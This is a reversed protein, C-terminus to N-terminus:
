TGVMARHDRKLANEFDAVIHCHAQRYAPQGNQHKGSHRQYATRLDQISRIEGVVDEIEFARLRAACGFGPTAPRGTRNESVFFDNM